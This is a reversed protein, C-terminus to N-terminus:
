RKRGDEIVSDIKMERNEGVTQSFVVSLQMNVAKRGDRAEIIAEIAGLVIDALYKAAKEDDIARFSSREISRM